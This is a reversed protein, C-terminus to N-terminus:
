QGFEMFDVTLTPNEFVVDDRFSDGNSGDFYMRFQVRGFPVAGSVVDTVNLPLYVCDTVDLVHQGTPNGLYDGEDLSEGYELVDLHLPGLGAEHDSFAFGNVVCSDFDLAAYSVLATTPVDTLSFTLFTEYDHNDAANDGPYFEGIHVNGAESVSGSVEPEVLITVMARSAYEEAEEIVDALVSTPTGNPEDEKEPAEESGTCGVVVVVFILLVYRM